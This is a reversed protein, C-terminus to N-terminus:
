RKFQELLNNKYYKRLAQVIVNKYYLPNGRSYNSSPKLEKVAEVVGECDHQRVSDHMAMMANAFWAIMLGEDIDDLTWGQENKTKVFWDAWYSADDTNKNAM